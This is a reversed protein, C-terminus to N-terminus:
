EGNFYEEIADLVRLDYKFRIINRKEEIIDCMLMNTSMVKRKIIDLRDSFDEPAINHKSCLLETREDIDLNYRTSAVTDRNFDSFHKELLEKALGKSKSSSNKIHTLIDYLMSEDLESVGVYNLKNFVRTRASKWTKTEYNLNFIFFHEINTYLGRIRKLSQNNTKVMEKKTAM